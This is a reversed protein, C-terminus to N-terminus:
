FMGKNIHTFFSYGTWSLSKSAMEVKLMKGRAFVISFNCGREARLLTKRYPMLNVNYQGKYM